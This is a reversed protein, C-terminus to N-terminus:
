QCAGHVPQGDDGRRKYPQKGFTSGEDEVQQMDISGLLFHGLFFDSGHYVFPGLVAFHLFHFLVNYVTDEGQAVAADVGDHGIAAVDYGNVYVHVVPLQIVDYALVQVLNIRDRLSVGQVINDSYDIQLIEESLQVTALEIQTIDDTRGM